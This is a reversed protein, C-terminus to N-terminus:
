ARLVCVESLVHICPQFSTGDPQRHCTSKGAQAILKLNESEQHVNYPGPLEDIVKIFSHLSFEGLPTAFNSLQKDLPCVRLWSNESGQYIAAAFTWTAPTTQQCDMM